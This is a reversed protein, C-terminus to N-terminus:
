DHAHRAVIVSTNDLIFQNIARHDSYRRSGQFPKGPLLLSENGGRIYTNFNGWADIVCRAAVPFEVGELTCMLHVFEDGKMKDPLNKLEDERMYRFQLASSAGPTGYADGLREKRRRAQGM